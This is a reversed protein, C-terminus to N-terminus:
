LRGDSAEGKGWENGRRCLNFQDAPSRDEVGVLGIAPEAMTSRVRLPARREKSQAESRERQAHAARVVAGPVFHLPPRLAPQTLRAEYLSLRQGQRLRTPLNRM